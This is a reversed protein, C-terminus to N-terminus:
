SDDDRSKAAQLSLKSIRAQLSPEMGKEGKKEKGKGKTPTIKPAQAILKDAEAAGVEEMFANVRADLEKDEEGSDQEMDEFAGGVAGVAEEQNLQLAATDVQYQNMIRAFQASPMLIQARHMVRTIRVLAAQMGIAGEQLTTGALVEEIDAAQKGFALAHSRSREKDRAYQRAASPNGLKVNNRAAVSAKEARAYAKKSSRVLVRRMEELKERQEAVLEADTKRRGFLWEIGM